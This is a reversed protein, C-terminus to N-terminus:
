CYFNVVSGLNGSDAPFFEHAANLAHIDWFQTLKGFGGDDNGHSNKGHKAVGGTVILFQCNNHICSLRSKKIKM